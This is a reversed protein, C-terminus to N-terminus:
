GQRGAGQFGAGMLLDLGGPICAALRVLSHMAGGCPETGHRWRLVQKIDVGLAEAFGNWSLGSAEQLLHLRKVFDEPLGGNGYPLPRGHITLGQTTRARCDTDSYTKM